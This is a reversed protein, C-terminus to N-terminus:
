ASLYGVQEMENEPVCVSVDALNVRGAPLRDVLRYALVVEDQVTLATRTRRLM